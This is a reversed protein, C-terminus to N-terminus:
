DGRTEQVRKAYQCNMNCAWDYCEKSVLVRAVSSLPSNLDVLSAPSAITRRQKHCRLRSIITLVWRASYKVQILTFTMTEDSRDKWGANSSL